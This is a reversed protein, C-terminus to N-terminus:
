RPPYPSGPACGAVFPLDWVVASKCTPEHWLATLLSARPRHCSFPFREDLRWVGLVTEDLESYRPDCAIEFRM